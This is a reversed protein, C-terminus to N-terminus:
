HKNVSENNLWSRRLDEAQQQIEALEVETKRDVNKLQMAMRQNGRLQERHRSLFDWYFTTIPCADKGTSKKPDFRCNQCFNSMRSIYAGTACYPKTGVIGGDGFQSMGLTNPLSVWDIADLYMAMHWQHFQYPHAGFTQSLNGLVMLRHIHHAYGHKLVHNMSERVCVMETQGDWFFSPLPQQHEFFNLEAYRPMHSWYIGRIFERWGLIQRVFGETSALDVQGAQYAEVAAQVCERPNLLKVNLYVSLRSHHLTAEGTWMADEYRGFRPLHHRVFYKLLKLADARTVALTEDFVEGPNSPFRARVLDIVAQTMADATFKLPAPLKGPGSLGFSERNEHDFNWQGGEPQGAEDVLIQHKKRMERYFYELILKKKGSSFKQFDLHTAFFHTDDLYTLPIGLKRAAAELRQKVRWDGPEVVVLEKIGVEHADRLLLDTFTQGEDQAPDENLERYHVRFKKARLEDRFHRMASFFFTIRLRHCWIQEVEEPTEAMWLIDTEPCYQSFIPSNIDLQDGLIILFRHAGSPPTHSVASRRPM